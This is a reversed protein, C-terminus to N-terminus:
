FCLVVFCALQLMKRIEDRVLPYRKERVRDPFDPYERADETNIKIGGYRICKKLCSLWMPMTDASTGRSGNWNMRGQMSDYVQGEEARLYEAIIQDGTSHCREQSFKDFNKVAIALNKQTAPM